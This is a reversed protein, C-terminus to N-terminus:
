LHRVEYKFGLRSKELSRLNTSTDLWHYNEPALAQMKMNSPHLTLSLATAKGSSLHYTAM